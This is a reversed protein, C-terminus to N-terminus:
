VPGTASRKDSPNHSTVKEAPSTASLKITPHHNQNIKKWLRDDVNNNNAKSNNTHHKRSPRSSSPQVQGTASMRRRTQALTPTHHYHSAAGHSMSHSKKKINNHLSSNLAAISSHAKRASKSTTMPNTERVWSMQQPQQQQRRNTLHSSRRSKVKETMTQLRQNSQNKSSNNSNSPHSEMPTEDSKSSPSPSHLQMSASGANSSISNNNYNNRVTHLSPELELIDDSFTVQSSMRSSTNTDRSAFTSHSQQQQQQSSGALPSRQVQRLPPMYDYQISGSSDELLNSRNPKQLSKFGNLNSSSAPPQPKKSSSPNTGCNTPSLVENTGSTLTKRNARPSLTGGQQQNNQRLMLLMQTRDIAPLPSTQGEKVPTSVSASPSSSIDKSHPPSAPIKSPKKRKPQKWIRYQVKWRDVAGGKQFWHRYLRILEVHFAIVFLALVAGVLRGVSNGRARYREWELQREERWDKFIQYLIPWVRRLFEDKWHIAHLSVRQAAPHLYNDSVHIRMQDLSTRMARMAELSPGTGSSASEGAGSSNSSSEAGITNGNNM